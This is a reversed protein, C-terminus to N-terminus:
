TEGSPVPLYIMFSVKKAEVLFRQQLIGGVFRLEPLPTMLADPPIDSAVFGDDPPPYDHPSYSGMVEGRKPAAM